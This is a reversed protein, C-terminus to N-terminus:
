SSDPILSGFSESELAARCAETLFELVNRGQQRLSTVATLIRGVFWSGYKSQTGFSKRRWLVARRLAREANNNTPEAGEVRVFTWLSQELKLINECTHRTKEHALRSGTELSKKVSQEVPKMAEQFEERNLKGSRVKHWLKFLRKVQSLLAKGVKESEEGREVFAQFDRALHAWCIQRRRPELWNYAGHRDSTVIGKAEENVVQVAQKRGRGSLVNFVTVDRTANVWLWKRRGNERWGTEDVYQVMQQEVFQQAAAVPKRLAKSVQREIAPISGLSVDLGYLVEMAETVDRHSAGLRGTLYGITAQVRPGFSGAPMEAPWEARNQTGCVLCRLSHRRYETVEVKVPPLESIQHRAPSPDDGILLYGCNACSVPRLEIIHDVESEPKLRRGHGKHGAKPGRKRERRRLLGKRPQKTQSPPDSSPPKSSNHSNKGLRERLESIEAKLDEVQIVQQRLEAFEKEFVAVQAKLASLEFAEERLKTVEQQYALCRIELLRLQHRLSFLITRVALPTCTWDQETIEPDRRM